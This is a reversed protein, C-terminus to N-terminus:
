QDLEFREIEGFLQLLGLRFEGGPLGLVIAILCAQSGFLDTLRLRGGPTRDVALAKTRMWFDRFVKTLAQAEVVLGSPASEVRSVM